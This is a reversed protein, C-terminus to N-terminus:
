SLRINKIQMLNYSLRKETKQDTAVLVQSGTSTTAIREPLLTVKIIEENKTVYTVQLSQKLAIADECIQRTGKGRNPNKKKNRKKKKSEISQFDNKDVELTSQMELLEKQAENAEILQEQLISRSKINELTPLPERISSSTQFGDKALLAIFDEKRSPDIAYLGPTFRHAIFPKYSRTSEFKKIQSKHISLITAEFVEMDGQTGIWGRITDEVNEPLGIQSNKKLFSLIQDRRWGKKLAQEISYETIKYSNLRDCSILDAFHGIQYLKEHSLGAPAAIDFSPTLYFEEFDEKNSNKLLAKTRSSLRYFKESGWFGIDVLGQAILPAFATSEKISLPSSWTETHFADRWEDGKRWRRYLAQLPQEAIWQDGAQELVWFLWEILPFDKELKSLILRGQEFPSLTYWEEIVPDNTRLGNDKYVVLGHQMLFEIHLNFIDSQSDWIQTFFSDLADKDSKSILAQQTLRLPHQDIYTLLTTISFHFSPEFERKELEKLDEHSFLPLRLEDQLSHVLFPLLISPVIYFFHGNQENTKAILGKRELLLMTKEWDKSQGGLSIILEELISSNHIMGGCHLLISLAQRDRHHLDKVLTTVRSDQKLAKACLQFLRDETTIRSPQGGLASYINKVIDIPLKQLEKSIKNQSPFEKSRVHPNKPKTSSKPYNLPPTLIRRQHPLLVSPYRENNKHSNKGRKRKRRRRRKKINPDFHPKTTETEEQAM